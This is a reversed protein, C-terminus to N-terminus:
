GVCRRVNTESTDAPRTTGGASLLNVGGLLISGTATGYRYFCTSGDERTRLLKGSTSWSLDLSVSGANYPEQDCAGTEYAYCTVPVTTVLHAMFSSSTQLTGGTTSGELSLVPSVSNPDDCTQEQDLFFYTTPTGGSTRSQLSIFTDVCGDTYQWM